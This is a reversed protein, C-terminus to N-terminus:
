DREDELGNTQILIKLIYPNKPNLDQGDELRTLGSESL